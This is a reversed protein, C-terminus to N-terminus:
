QIGSAKVLPFRSKWMHERALTSTTFSIASYMSRKRASLYRLSTPRLLMLRQCLKRAFTSNSGIEDYARFSSRESFTPYWEVKAVREVNVNDWDEDSDSDESIGSLEEPRVQLAEEGVARVSGNSNYCIVSPIKSNGGVSQQGPFRCDIVILPM